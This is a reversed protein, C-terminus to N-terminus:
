ACACSCCGVRWEQTLMAASEWLPAPRSMTTSGAWLCGCRGECPCSMPVMCRRKPRPSLQCRCSLCLAQPQPTHGLWSGHSCSNKVTGQAALLARLACDCLAVIEGQRDKPSEDPLDAEFPAAFNQLVKRIQPQLRQSLNISVQEALHLAYKDNRLPGFPRTPTRTGGEIGAKPPMAGIHCLAYIHFM